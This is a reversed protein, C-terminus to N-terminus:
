FHRDIRLTARFSGPDSELGRSLGILLGTSADLRHRLGLQALPMERPSRAELSLWPQQIFDLSGSTAEGLRLSTGIAARYSPNLDPGETRLETEVHLSALGGSDLQKEAKAKVGPRAGRTGPVTPLDVLAAVALNPLGHTGHTVVYAADLEATGVGSDQGVVYPIRLTLHGEGPLTADISGEGALASSGTAPPNYNLRVHVASLGAEVAQEYVSPSAADNAVDAAWAAPAFGLALSGAVLALERM